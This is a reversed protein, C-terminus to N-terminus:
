RDARHQDLVPAFIRRQAGSDPPTPTAVPVPAAEELRRVVFAGFEPATHRLDLHTVEGVLPAVDSLRMPIDVLGGDYRGTRV